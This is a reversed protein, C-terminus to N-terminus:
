VDGNEFAPNRHLMSDEPDFDLKCMVDYGSCSQLEAAATFAINM